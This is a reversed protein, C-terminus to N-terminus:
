TGLYRLYVAAPDVPYLSLIRSLPLCLDLQNESTPEYYMGVMKGMM